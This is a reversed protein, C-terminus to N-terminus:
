RKVMRVLGAVELREVAAKSSLGRPLDDVASRVADGDVGPALVVPIGFVTQTAKEDAKPLRRSVEALALELAKVRAELADVRDDAATM